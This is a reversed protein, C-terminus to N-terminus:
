LFKEFRLKKIIHFYLLLIKSIIVPSIARLGELIKADGQTSDLLICTGDDNHVVNKCGEKRKCRLSCQVKSTKEIKEIENSDADALLEQLFSGDKLKGASEALEEFSPKNFESGELVTTLRTLFSTIFILSTVVSCGMKFLPVEYVKTASGKSSVLNFKFVSYYSPFDGKIGTCKYSLTFLLKSLCVLTTKLM